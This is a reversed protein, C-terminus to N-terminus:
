RRLADNPGAVRCGAQGGACNGLFPINKYKKEINYKKVQAFDLYFIAGTFTVATLMSLGQFYLRKFIYM